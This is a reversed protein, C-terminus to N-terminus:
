TVKATRIDDPSSCVNVAYSKFVSDNKAIQSAIGKLITNISRLQQDDEKIYFFGVSVVVPLQVGQPHVEKLHHIIRSSLYSKGAGPGGLIWLLPAERGIWERFLPEKIVWDGSGPLRKENLDEHTELVKSLAKSDLNDHLLKRDDEEKKEKKSDSLSKAVGEVTKETRKASSLTLAAIMGQENKTLENLRGLASQVKEDKGLFTVSAYELFRGRKILKESRAFIDLLTTLTEIFM